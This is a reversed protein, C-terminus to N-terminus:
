LFNADYIGLFITNFIKCNSITFLKVTKVFTSTDIVSDVKSTNSKNVQETQTTNQISEVQECVSQIKMSSNLVNEKIKSIFMFKLMSSKIRNLSNKSWKYFMPMVFENFNEKKSNVMDFTINVTQVPLDLIPTPTAQSPLTENLLEICPMLVVENNIDIKSPFKSTLPSAHSVFGSDLSFTDDFHGNRLLSTRNSANVNMISDSRFLDLNKATRSVPITSIDGFSGMNLDLNSNSIAFVQSNKFPSVKSKSKKTSKKSSESTHHACKKSHTYSRYDQDFDDKPSFCSCLGLHKLSQCFNNGM